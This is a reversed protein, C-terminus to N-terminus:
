LSDNALFPPANSIAIVVYFVGSHHDVQIDPGYESILRTIEGNNHRFVFLINARSTYHRFELTDEECAAEVNFHEEVQPEDSDPLVTAISLTGSVGEKCRLMVDLRPESAPWELIVVATAILLFITIAFTIRRRTM